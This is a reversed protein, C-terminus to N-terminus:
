NRWILGWGAMSQLTWSSKCACTLHRSHSGWVGLMWLLHESRGSATLRTLQCSSALAGVHPLEFTSDLPCPLLKATPTLTFLVWPFCLDFALNHLNNRQEKYNASAKTGGPAPPCCVCEMLVRICLCMCICKAAVRSVCTYRAIGCVYVGVRTYLSTLM